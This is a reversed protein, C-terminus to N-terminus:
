SFLSARTHRINAFNSAFTPSNQLSHFVASIDSFGWMIGEGREAVKRMLHGGGGGGGGGLTFNLQNILSLNQPILRRYPSHLSYFYLQSSLKTILLIVEIGWLDCDPLKM